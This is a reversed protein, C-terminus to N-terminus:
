KIALMNIYSIKPNDWLRLGQKKMKINLDVQKGFSLKSFLNKLLFTYCEKENYSTTKDKLNLKTWKIPPVSKIFGEDDGILYDVYKNGNKRYQISLEKHTAKMTNRENIKNRGFGM